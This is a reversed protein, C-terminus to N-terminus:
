EDEDDSDLIARGGAVKQVPGADAADAEDEDSGADVGGALRRVPATDSKSRAIRADRQREREAFDDEDEADRARKKASSPGAGHVMRRKMAAVDMEDDDDSEAHLGEELYGDSLEQNGYTAKRSGRERDAQRTALKNQEDVVRELERKEAEPDHLSAILRTKPGRAVQTRNAIALSLSKHARSSTGKVLRFMTKTTIPAMDEIQGKHQAYLYMTDSAAPTDIIDYAERGVFLTRSGDSWTVVRSNSEMVGGPGPRWRVISECRVRIRRKGEEDQVEAVDEGQYTDKDFPAWQVGLVNPLKALTVPGQFKAVAPLAIDMPPATQEEVAAGTKLYKEYEGADDEDLNAEDDSGFLDRYDAGGGGATAAGADGFIDDADGADGAADGFLDDADGADGFLDEAGAADGSAASFEGLMPPAPAEAGASTGAAAGDDAGGAVLSMDVDDDGFLDDVTAQQEEASM